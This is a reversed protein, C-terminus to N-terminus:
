ASVKKRSKPAKAPTQIDGLLAVIKDFLHQPDIMETNVTKLAELMEMRAKLHGRKYAADTAEGITTKLSDFIPSSM